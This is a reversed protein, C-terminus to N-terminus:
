LSQGCVAIECFKGGWVGQSTPQHYVGSALTGRHKRKDGCHSYEAKQYLEGLMDGEREALSAQSLKVSSLRKDFEKLGDEVHRVRQGYVACVRSEIVIQTKHKETYSSSM